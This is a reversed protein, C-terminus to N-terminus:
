RNLFRSLVRSVLELLIPILIPPIAAAGDGAAGFSPLLEDVRDCLEMDILDSVRMGSADDVAGFPMPGRLANLCGGVYLASDVTETAVFDGARVASVLKGIEAVPLEAPFHLDAM